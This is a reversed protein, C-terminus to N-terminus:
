GKWRNRMDMIHAVLSGALAAPVWPWAAGELAARLALMLFVGPLLLLLVDAAAQAGTRGRDPLARTTEARNPVAPEPRARRRWLIRASRRWWILGAAELVTFVLVLDILHPSSLLTAATM